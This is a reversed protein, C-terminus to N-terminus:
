IVKSSTLVSKIGEYILKYEISITEEVAAASKKREQDQAVSVQLLFVHFADLVSRDQETYFKKQGKTEFLPLIHNPEMICEHEKFQRLFQWPKGEFLRSIVRFFMSPDFELLVSLYEETSIFNVIDLVHQRYQAPNLEGNPFRKGKLFMQIIWLFKYGIYLYSRELQYKKDAPAKLLKQLDERSYTQKQLMKAQLLTKYMTNLINM